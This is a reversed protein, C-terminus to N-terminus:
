TACFSKVPFFNNTLEYLIATKETYVYGQLLYVSMTIKDEITDSHDHKYYVRGTNFDTLSFKTIDKKFDILEVSGCSPHFAEIYLEPTQIGARTELYELVKSLDLKIPASDGEDLILRPVPLFRLLGGSSVSIDIYFVQDILSNALYSTVDFFFSDNSKLEAMSHTHEYLIRGNNLDNQTFQNTEVTQGSETYEYLIRGMQPPITVVYKVERDEDSCMFHLQELMIQKRTMPFVHLFENKIQKLGVPNIKIYLIQETTNHLGDTVHFKMKGDLHNKDHIFYIQEANIQSQTFNTIKERFNSKLALHGGRVSKTYFHLNEPSTDYDQAVSFTNLFTLFYIAFLFVNLFVM